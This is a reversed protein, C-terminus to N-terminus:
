ETLRVLAHGIEGVADIMAASLGLNFVTARVVRELTPGLTAYEAEGIEALLAVIGVSDAIMPRLAAVADKVQQAIEDMPDM